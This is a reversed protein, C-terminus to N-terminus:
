NWQLRKSENLLIKNRVLLEMVEPYLKHEAQKVKEQLSAETDQPLIEVVQQRIITGTDVGADVFHVTTGHFQVGAELARKHTNMGAFSPLLAPHINILRGEWKSVFENSLIRMFGALFVFDAECKVLEEQLLHDYGERNDKFPIHSIVKTPINALRARELGKVNDKNSIVLVIEAQSQKAPNNTHDILAQLNTGSGSILVAVRKKTVSPKVAVFDLPTILEPQNPLPYM